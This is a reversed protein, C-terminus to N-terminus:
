TLGELMVGARVEMMVGLGRWGLAFEVVKFGGSLEESLGSLLWVAELLKPVFTTGLEENYPVGGM